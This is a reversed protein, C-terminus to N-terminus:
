VGKQEDTPVIYCESQEMYIEENLNRNLFTRQCKNSSALAFLVIIKMISAELAYTDFYDVDKNQRFGKTVLWDKYINLTGDSHYKKRFLCKCGIPLDVFEWTHNLMSLDM